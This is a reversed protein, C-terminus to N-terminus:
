ITSSKISTNMRYSFKVCVPYLHRLKIINLFLKSMMALPNHYVIEEITFLKMYTNGTAKSRGLFEWTLLKDHLCFEPTWNNLPLMNKRNWFKNSSGGRKHCGSTRKKSRVSRQWCISYPHTCLRKSKSTLIESALNQANWCM